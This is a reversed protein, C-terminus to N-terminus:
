PHPTANFFCSPHSYSAFCKAYINLHCVVLRISKCCTCLMYAHRDDEADSALRETNAGASSHTDMDIVSQKM